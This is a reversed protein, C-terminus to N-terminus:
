VRECIKIIKYSDTKGSIITMSSKPLKLETALLNIIAQNAKGNEPVCTVYIKLWSKGNADIYYDGIRNFSAKTIAKIQLTKPTIKSSNV